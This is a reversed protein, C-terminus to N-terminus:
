VGADHEYREHLHSFVPWFPQPLHGDLRDALIALHTHWGGSAGILDAPKLRTHTVVLRVQEGAPSLEFTVESPADAEGWSWALRQMPECVIVRHKSTIGEAYAQYRPPPPVPTQSLDVHHFHLEFTSGVRQEMRGSALWQSRKDSETLYAWVRELPGPLLREFRVTDAALRQREPEAILKNALQGLIGGWGEQTADAWEPLVDEHLLTLDCGSGAPVIDISVRTMAESYKPVGFTFVLRRPRDIELYEGVHPVNDGDRRDTFSFHGGVRADIDVKVMEGNPASFLWRGATAPDLWADFVREPSADFHRTLRLSRLASTTM